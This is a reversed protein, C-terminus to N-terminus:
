VFMINMCWLNRGDYSLSVYKREKRDEAQTSEDALGPIPFDSVSKNLQTHLPCHYAYNINRFIINIHWGSDIHRSYIIQVCFLISVLIPQHVEVGAHCIVCNM